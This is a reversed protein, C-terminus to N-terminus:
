FHTLVLLGLGALYMVLPFVINNLWRRYDILAAGFFVAVGVVLWIIQRRWMETLYVDARMYTASYIAMVGFISLAIALLVLLWNMGLLKRLLSSM